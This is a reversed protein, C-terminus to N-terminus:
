DLSPPPTNKGGFYSHRKIISRLAKKPVHDHKKWAVINNCPFRGSASSPNHGHLFPSFVLLFLICVGIMYIIDSLINKLAHL